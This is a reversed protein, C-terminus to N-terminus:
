MTLLPMVVFSMRHLLRVQHPCPHFLISYLRIVMMVIKLRRTRQTIDRSKGVMAAGDGCGQLFKIVAFEENHRLRVHNRWLSKSDSFQTTTNRASGQDDSVFLDGIRPM